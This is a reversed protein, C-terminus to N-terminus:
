LERTRWRKYTCSKKEMDFHTVEGEKFAINLKHYIPRVDVTIDKEDRPGFPFWILSPFFLFNHTNAIVTIDHNEGFKKRSILQQQTAAM